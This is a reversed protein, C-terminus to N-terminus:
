SRLWASASMKVRLGAMASVRDLSAHNPKFGSPLIVTSFKEPAFNLLRLNTCRETIAPLPWSRKQWGGTM